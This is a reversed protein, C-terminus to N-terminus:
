HITNLMNKESLLNDRKKIAKFLKEILINKPTNDERNLIDGIAQYNEKNMGIINKEYERYIEKDKFFVYDYGKSQSSHEIYNDNDGFDLYIHLARHYILSQFNKYGDNIYLIIKFDNDEYYTLVDDITYCYAVNFNTEAKLYRYVKLNRVVFRIKEKSNITEFVERFQEIQYISSLDGFFYIAINEHGNEVRSHNTNIERIKLENTFPDIKKAIMKDRKNIIDTVSSIFKKISEGEKYEGLYLKKVEERKKKMPDNKIEDEILVLLNDINDHTIRNCGKLINYDSVNHVEPNFVDALLFPKNVNLFDTMTSSMDFIGFDVLPYINNVDDKDLMVAYSSEEVKKILRHHIEKVKPDNGGLNPHPKYIFFYKNSDIIQNVIKEGYIDVSTYRMSRHTAEYTTTYIVVPRKKTDLKIPKIFDLQPRGTQILKKPDLNILYKMYNNYGNPAHVFIYDYGKVQNSHDSSKDSEGHNIHIHLVNENLLSQFNKVGNNIYIIVKFNHKNYLSHLQQVTNRYAVPFPLISKFYNQVERSRTVVVIKHKKDLEKFTDIWQKIQYTQGMGGFFYIVVEAKAIDKSRVDFIEYVKEEYKPHKALFSKINKKVRNKISM